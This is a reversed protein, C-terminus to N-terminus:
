TRSGGDVRPSRDISVVRGSSMRFVQDAIKMLEQDHTALLVSKGQKKLSGLIDHIMKSSAEDIFVTPEDAYLYRPDTMLARVFAVRQQEGGSLQEVEQNVRNSLNLQELLQLAKPRYAEIDEDRCLLPLMVNELVTYHPLLNIHQFVYGALTRRLLTKHYDSYSTVDKGDFMIRGATPTLIMGLMGLLTSKGCGSPGTFVLITGDQVKLSVDVVAPIEDSRGRNYIKTLGRVEIM